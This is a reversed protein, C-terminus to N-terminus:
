HVTNSGLVVRSAEVDKRKILTQESTNKSILGIMFKTIKEIEILKNEEVLKNNYDVSVTYYDEVQKIVPSITLVHAASIDTKNEKSLLFKSLVINSVGTENNKFEEVALPEDLFIRTKTKKTVKSILEDGNIMRIHYVNTTKM